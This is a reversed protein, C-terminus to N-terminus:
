ALVTRIQPSTTERYLLTVLLITAIALALPPKNLAVLIGGFQLAAVLVASLTFLLLRRIREAILAFAGVIDDLDDWYLLVREM